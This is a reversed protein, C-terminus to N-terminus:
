DKKEELTIVNAALFHIPKMQGAGVMRAMQWFGTLANVTASGINWGLFFTSGIM